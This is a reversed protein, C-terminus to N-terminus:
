EKGSGSAGAPEQAADALIQGGKDKRMRQWLLMAAVILLGIADTALGPIILVIAGAGLLIRQWWDVTGFFYGVTCGGLAVLGIFASIAAWTVELPSGMMALAPSYVFVFPLIFGPLALRLAMWGTKGPPSGALGAGAYASLAVPPTVMSLIAFYQLFLHALIPEIGVMILSPAVLTATLIYCVVTTSGMGIIISLVMSLILLVPVNGGSLEIMFRALKTGLGSVNVVGVIIGAAAAVIALSYMTRGADRLAGYIKGWGIESQKHQVLAVIIVGIIGVLGARSPSWGSLLTAVLAGIPIIYLGYEKLVEKVKPREEAPIPALRRKKAEFYVAVGLGVFYLVAPIAAVKVVELYPVQLFEAMIFAAAGMIPPLIQGGTSAAAEIAGALYNPYGLRKMLPITFVGTTAVNAVASGSIMGMLASSAVAVEAPGGSIGGAAAMALRIFFQAGGLAEMFAGFIVFIVVYQLMTQLPIGMLGDTTLFMTTVIRELDFGKHGLLGPIVYGFRFYLLFALAIVVMGWSEARRTAELVLIIAIIGVIIDPTTPMGVRATLGMFNFTIYLGVVFSCILLLSDVILSISLQKCLPKLLFTAVLSIMLFIAMQIHLPLLWITTALLCYISLAACVIGGVFTRFNKISASRSLEEM